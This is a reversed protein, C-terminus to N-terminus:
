HSLLQTGAACGALWGGHAAALGEILSVSLTHRMGGDPQKRQRTTGILCLLNLYLLTYTNKHRHRPQGLYSSVSSSALRVGLEVGVCDAVEDEGTRVKGWMARDRENKRVESPCLSCFSGGRSAAFWCTIWWGWLIARRGSVTREKTGKLGNRQFCNLRHIQTLTQTHRYTYIRKNNKNNNNKSPHQALSSYWTTMQCPSLTIFGLWCLLFDIIVGLMLAEIATWTGMLVRIIMENGWLSDDVTVWWWCQTYGGGTEGAEKKKRKFPHLKRM